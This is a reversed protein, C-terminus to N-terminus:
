CGRELGAIKDLRRQHRTEFTAGIFADVIAIATPIDVQRAGLAVAHANNHERALRATEVNHALGCRVGPLKNAAISIGIGTGCILVARDFRGQVVGLCPGSVYDPYDVSADGDTGFDEVTHGQARLHAIIARKHAPSAHDGAIAINM